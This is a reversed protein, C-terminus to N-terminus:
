TFRREHSLQFHLFSSTAHKNFINVLLYLSLLCKHIVPLNLSVLHLGYNPVSDNFDTYSSESILFFNTHYWFLPLSMFQKIM